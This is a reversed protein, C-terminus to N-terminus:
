MTRVREGNGRADGRKRERREVETVQRAVEQKPLNRDPDQLKRVYGCQVHDARGDKKDNFRKITEEQAICM